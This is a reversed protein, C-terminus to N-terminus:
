TSRPRHWRVPHSCALAQQMSVGLKFCLTCMAPGACACTPSKCGPLAAQWGGGHCSHLGLPVAAEAGRCAIRRSTFAM